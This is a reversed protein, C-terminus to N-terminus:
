RAGTLPEYELGLLCSAIAEPPLVHDVGRDIAAKPMGFMASSEQDQAIALGGGRRIAAAGIAGDTGMGSLVIAACAQGAAAAISGFLVDGSPRHRGHVTHRDLRLQGTASLQLHAGEPAIWAGASAPAEAEAVAVPLPVAQDLWRTLDGTFGATIHQVILLPVPYDAPLSELLRALVNPGGTSACIGIASARRAACGSGPAPRLRARPHRIVRARSLIKVRQRFAAAAVADPQHMDLDDKAVADLAGAALAAATNGTSPGLHSSIVLIPLPQSSMIEEIAAIGNMGPLEIDMTMLDPRLRPLAEMAEEASACVGAIRIEGDHELLRRLAAAYTRSDECILMHPATVHTV